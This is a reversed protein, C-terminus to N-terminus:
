KYCLTLRLLDGHVNPAITCCNECWGTNTCIMQGTQKSPIFLGCRRCCSSASSSTDDSSILALLSNNDMSTKPYDDHDYDVLLNHASIVHYAVYRLVSPDVDVDVGGGDYMRKVAKNQLLNSATEEIDAVSKIAQVRREFRRKVNHYRNKINNDSRGKFVKSMSAWKSGEMYHLRFILADEEKTWEDLKLTPRLHNLYRERCQKGTRGPLAKAIKPWKLQLNKYM